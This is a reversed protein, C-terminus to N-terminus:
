VCVSVCVATMLDCVRGSLAISQVIIDNGGGCSDSRNVRLLNRQTVCGLASHLNDSIRRAVHPSAADDTQRPIGELRCCKLVGVSHLVVASRDKYIPSPTTPACVRVCNRCVCARSCACVSCM